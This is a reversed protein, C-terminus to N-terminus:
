KTNKIKKEIKDVELQVISKKEVEEVIINEVQDLLMLKTSFTRAIVLQKQQSKLRNSTTNKFRNM